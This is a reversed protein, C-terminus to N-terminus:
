APSAEDPAPADVDADAQRGTIWEPWRGAVLQLRHAPKAHTSACRRQVHAFERVFVQQATM